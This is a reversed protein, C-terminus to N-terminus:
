IATLDPKLTPCWMNKSLVFLMTSLNATARHAPPLLLGVTRTTDRLTALGAVCLLSGMRSGRPLAHQQESAIAMTLMGERGRISTDQHQRMRHVDAEPPGNVSGLARYQGIRARLIPIVCWHSNDVESSGTTFPLKM